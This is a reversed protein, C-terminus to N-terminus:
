DYFPHCKSERLRARLAPSLVKDFLDGGWHIGKVWERSRTDFSEPTEREFVTHSIGAHIVPQNRSPIINVSRLLFERIQFRKIPASRM